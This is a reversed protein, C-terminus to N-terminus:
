RSRGRPMRADLPDVFPLPAHCSPYGPGFRASFQRHEARKYSAIARDFEILAESFNGVTAQSVGVLRQGLMRLTAEKQEEARKLFQAALETVNSAHFGNFNAVWFSYLVSFLLFPDEPAEGRAEAQEILTRARLAAAKTEPAGYGRFHTLPTVM